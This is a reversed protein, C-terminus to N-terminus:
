EISNRWESHGVCQFKIATKSYNLLSHVLNIIASKYIMEVFMFESEKSRCSM